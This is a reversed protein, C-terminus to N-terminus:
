RKAGGWPSFPDGGRSRIPADRTELIRRAAVAVAEPPVPRIWERSELFAVTTEGRVFEDSELVQVLFPVNTVIGLLITQRLAEILKRRAQERDPAVVIMKALLPDYQTGVAQGERIGADIRLGPRQPWELALIRGTQPLFDCYPDEANLRAEIAHGRATRPAPLPGGLELEVQARVLDIGTLMETVPHEVQLRANVELFYFTGGPEVLFEVTGASRYGAARAVKRAAALLGDRTRADLGPAPAEEIVKQYRRQLSCDREGLAVAESGDGFVQVEIHRAPSVYKEVLLRGDAFASEAERRAGELAEGIGDPGRVLRMGRGGGGGAAKVLLPYGWRRSAEDLQARSDCEQAGPVVPVGASEALTRSSRKDGLKEMAEATPGLFKLGAEKCARALSPSQSLFGYGPHLATAHTKMAAAMLAALDLYGGPSTLPSVEDALDVHPAARDADTHVAVGPIGMERLTRFIRCAIEGRNAVLVKM